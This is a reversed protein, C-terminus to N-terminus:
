TERQTTAEDESRAASRLVEQKPCVGRGHVGPQNRSWCRLLIWLRPLGLLILDISFEAYWFGLFFRFFPSNKKFNPCVRKLLAVSKQIDPESLSICNLTAANAMDRQTTERELNKNRERTERSIAKQVFHELKTEGEPNERAIVKQVLPFFPLLSLKLFTPISFFTFKERYRRDQKKASGM